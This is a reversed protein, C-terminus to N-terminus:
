AASALLFSIAQKYKAVREHDKATPNALRSLDSNDHLDALKVVRGIPNQASRLVFGMYTEGPRKTVTDLADLVTESFGDRRLDDVTVSTDEIVDHLVAVIRAEADRVSLMVRLPHLIYPQGAKDVQGAHTVAAIAVARELTSM